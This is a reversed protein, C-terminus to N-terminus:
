VCKELVEFSFEGFLGTGLNSSCNQHKHLSSGLQLDGEGVAVGNTKAIVEITKASEADKSQEKSSSNRDPCVEGGSMSGVDKNM